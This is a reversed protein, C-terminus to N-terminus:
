YELMDRYKGSFYEARGVKQMFVEIRQALDCNNPYLACIYTSNFGQFGSFISFIQIQYLRIESQLGGRMLLDFLGRKFHDVYQIGM